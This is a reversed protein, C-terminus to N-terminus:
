KLILTASSAPPCLLSSLRHALPCSRQAPSLGRASHPTWCGEVRGAPALIELRIERPGVPSDWTRAFSPCLAATGPAPRRPQSCGGPVSQRHRRVPISVDFSSSCFRALRVKVPFASEQLQAEFGDSNQLTGVGGGSAVFAVVREGTGQGEADLFGKRPWGQSPLPCLRTGESGRGTGM